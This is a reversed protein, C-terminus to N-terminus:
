RTCWRTASFNRTPRAKRSAIGAVNVAPNAPLSHVGPNAVGHVEAPFERLDRLAALIFRQQIRVLRYADAERAHENGGGVAGKSGDDRLAKTAFEGWLERGSTKVEKGSEAGGRRM